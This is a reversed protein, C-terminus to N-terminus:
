VTFSMSSVGGPGAERVHISDIPVGYGPVSPQKILDLGNVYLGYARASHDTLAAATVAGLAM